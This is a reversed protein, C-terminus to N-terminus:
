AVIRSIRQEEKCIDQQGQCEAIIINRQKPERFIRSRIIYGIARPM